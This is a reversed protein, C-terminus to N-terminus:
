KCTYLYLRGLNDHDPMIPGHSKGTLVNRRCLSAGHVEFIGDLVLPVIGIFIIMISLRVIGRIDCTKSELFVQKVVSIEVM